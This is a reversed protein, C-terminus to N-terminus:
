ATIFKYQLHTVFERNSTAGLLAVSRRWSCAAHPGGALCMAGWSTGQLVTEIRTQLAQLCAGLAKARHSEAEPAASGYERTQRPKWRRGQQRRHLALACSLKKFNEM